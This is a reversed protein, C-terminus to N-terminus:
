RKAKQTEEQYVNENAFEKKLVQEFMFKIQPNDKVQSMLENLQKLLKIEERTCMAIRINNNSSIVINSARQKKDRYVSLDLEEVEKKYHILKKINNENSYKSITEMFPKACVLFFAITSVLFLSNISGLTLLTLCPILFKFCTDIIIGRKNKLINERLEDIQSVCYDYYEIKLDIGKNQEELRSNQRELSERKSVQEKRKYLLERFDYCLNLFNEKEM